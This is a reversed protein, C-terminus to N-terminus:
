AVKVWVPKRCGPNTAKWGMRHLRNLLTQRSCGVYFALRSVPIHNLQSVVVNMVQDSVKITKEKGDNQSPQEELKAYADGTIRQIPWRCGSYRYM